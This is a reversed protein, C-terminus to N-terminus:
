SFLRCELDLSMSNIGKHNSYYFNNFILLDFTRFNPVNNKYLNSTQNRHSNPSNNNYTIGDPKQSRVDESVLWVDLFQGSVM